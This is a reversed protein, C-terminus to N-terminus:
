LFITHIVIKKAAAYENHIGGSRERFFANASQKEPFSGASDMYTDALFVPSGYSRRYFYMDDKMWHDPLQRRPLNAPFKRPQM